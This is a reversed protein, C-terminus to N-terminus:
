PYLIFPLYIINVTYEGSNDGVVNENIGLYLRGKMPMRIRNETGIYFKEGIEHRIERGTDEDVEISILLIVKGILAGINEDPIPQQMIKLPYGDPGCFGMPNGKQLSILGWANFYIEQSESVEIGTDIWDVHGLVTIRQVTEQDSVPFREQEEQLFPFALSRSQVRILVSGEVPVCSSLFLFFVFPLFLLSHHLVFYLSKKIGSKFYIKSSKDINEKLMRGAKHSAERAVKLYKVINM